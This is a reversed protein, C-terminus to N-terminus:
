GSKQSAVLKKLDEGLQKSMYDALSSVAQAENVQIVGITFVPIAKANAEKPIKVASFGMPTGAELKKLIEPTLPTMIRIPKGTDANGSWIIDAKGLDGFHLLYTTEGGIPHPLNAELMLAPTMAFGPVDFTFGLSDLVAHAQEVQASDLGSTPRLVPQVAVVVIINGRRSSAQTRAGGLGGGPNVQVPTPDSWPLFQQINWLDNASDVFQFPDGPRASDAAAVRCLTSSIGQCAQRVASRVFVMGACPAAAVQVSDAHASDAKARATAQVGAMARQLVAKITDRGTQRVTRLSDSNTEVIRRALDQDSHFWRRVRAEVSDKANLSAVISTDELAVAEAISDLRNFRRVQPQMTNDLAQLRSLPRVCARSRALEVAAMGAPPEDQASLGTASVSLLAFLALTVIPRVLTRLSLSRSTPDTPVSVIARIWHFLDGRMLRPFGRFRRHPADTWPAEDNTTM